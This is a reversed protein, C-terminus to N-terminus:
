DLRQSVVVADQLYYEYLKHGEQPAAHRDRHALAFALEDREALHHVLNALVRAPEEEEHAARVGLEIKVKVEGLALGRFVRDIIHLVAVRPYLAYDRERRFLTKYHGLM